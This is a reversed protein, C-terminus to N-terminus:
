EKIYVILNDLEEYIKLHNEIYDMVVQPEQWFTAKEKLILTHHM